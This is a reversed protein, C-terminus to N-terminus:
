SMDMYFIEGTPPDLSRVDIPTRLYIERDKRWTRTESKKHSFWNGITYTSTIPIHRAFINNKFSKM